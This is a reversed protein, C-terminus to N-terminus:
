WFWGTLATSLCLCLKNGSGYLVYQVSYIGVTLLVTKKKNNFLCHIFNSNLKLHNCLIIERSYLFSFSTRPLLTIACQLNIEFENWSPQRHSQPCSLRGTDIGPYRMVIALLRSPFLLLASLLSSVVPRFFFCLYFPCLSLLFLPLSSFSARLMFYCQSSRLSFLSSQPKPVFCQVRTFFAHFLYNSAM